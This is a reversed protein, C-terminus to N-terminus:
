QSPMLLQFEEDNFLLIQNPLTLLMGSSSKITYPVLADADM